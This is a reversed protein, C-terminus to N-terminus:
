NIIIEDAFLWAKGGKGIHWEPCSSVNQAKVKVFRASKKPNASFDTISIDTDPATRNTFSQIEEYAKGDSSISISVSSPLFIWSTQNQLFGCTVSKIKKPKGLDIVAELDSAEFGCWHKDTYDLSGRKGDILPSTIGGSYRKAPQHLLTLTGGLALNKVNPNIGPQMKRGPARVETGVRDTLGDGLEIRKKEAIGKLREAIEPHLEIINNKEGIDNELDYLELGVNVTGTPGPFGDKGPSTKAYTLSKHPFYLKWKGERVGRLEYDYYFVFENRPNAVFDGKFLPLINVGDIKKSPLTSGSISAITPLLDITSAINNCVTREPIVGPWCIVAPVRAGGEFATGKGERLPNASGANNGYNLWPGNDSTFIFLTDKEIGNRKLASIIEGASWDIEEIVDGYLGQKSKGRFKSSAAVPAHPMSHPMYLFFPRDKNKDIFKVGRETYLRTLGAQDDLTEITKIKEEGEILPLPPYRKAKPDKTDYKKGDYNVPWMDNSYPLGLYEDFGQKLPLFEKHHGLHWKGFIGTRYGRKKLIDAITEEAPNLGVQSFPMLANRIGVREAYCGTLLSARSASCVAQSVYFSTFRMGKEALADINPTSIDKAGFCSLDGYGMDDCFMIVINPPRKRDRVLGAISEAQSLVIAASGLAGLKIFDRRTLEKM